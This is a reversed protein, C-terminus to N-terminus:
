TIQRARCSKFGRHKVYGGRAIAQRQVAPSVGMPVSGAIGASLDPSQAKIRSATPM